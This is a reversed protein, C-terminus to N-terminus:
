MMQLVVLMELLQIAIRTGAMSRERWTQVYIALAKM